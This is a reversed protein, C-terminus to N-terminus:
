TESLLRGTGGETQRELKHWGGLEGAIKPDILWHWNSLLLLRLSIRISEGGMYTCPQLCSSRIVVEPKAYKELFPIFALASTEMPFFCTCLIPCGLSCAAPFSLLCLGDKGAVVSAEKMLSWCSCPQCVDDQCGTSRLIWKWKSERPKGGILFAAADGKSKQHACQGTGEPQYPGARSSWGWCCQDAGHCPVCARGCWPSTHSSGRDGISITYAM